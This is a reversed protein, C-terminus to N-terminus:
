DTKKSDEMEKQLYLLFNKLLRNDTADDVLESRSRKLQDDLYNKETM